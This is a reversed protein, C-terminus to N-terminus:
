FVHRGSPEICRRNVQLHSANLAVEAAAPRQGASKLCALQAAARQKPYSVTSVTCSAQVHPHQHVCAGCAAARKCWSQAQVWGPCGSMRAHGNSGAGCTCRPPGAPMALTSTSYQSKRSSPSPLHPAAALELPAHAPWPVGPLADAHKTNQSTSRKHLQADQSISHGGQLGDSAVFVLSRTLKRCVVPPAAACAGTSM